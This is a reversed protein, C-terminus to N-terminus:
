SLRIWNQGHSYRGTTTRAKRLYITSAETPHFQEGTPLVVKSLLDTLLIGQFTVGDVKVTQQPLSALDAISLAISTGSIGQVTLMPPDQCVAVSMSLCVLAILKTRTM